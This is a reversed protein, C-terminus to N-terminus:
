SKSKQKYVVFCDNKRYDRTHVKTGDTFTTGYCYMTGNKSVRGENIVARVRQLADVPDIGDRIEIIIRQKM